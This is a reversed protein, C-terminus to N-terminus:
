QAAVAIGVAALLCGGVILVTQTEEKRDREAMEEHTVPRDDALHASPGWTVNFGCGGCTAAILLM